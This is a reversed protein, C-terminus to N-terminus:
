GKQAYFTKEWQAQNQVAEHIYPAFYAANLLFANLANAPFRTPRVFDVFLVVRLGSTDNKVEHDLSDDFILVKGEEWHLVQDHVRIWCKEKPEPVILGLHLRLVGNYPGRHPPIHKGPELISFFATKIGPIQRLLRATQPCQQQAQASWHGYGCFLYTKWDRDQTITEVEPLIEHFGPLQDKYRMIEDLEQRILHWEKELTLAWPFLHKDYVPPNGHLSYRAIVEESWDIFAQVTKGLWTEPKKLQGEYVQAQAM